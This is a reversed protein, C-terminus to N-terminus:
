RHSPGPLRQVRFATIAAADASAGPESIYWEVVLFESLHRGIRLAGELWRLQSPRIADRNRRKCEAFLVEQGRWCFVDWAGWRSGVAQRIRGLLAAPETPPDPVAPSDWYGTRLAGSYTDIWVGDWGDARLVWLVALEAFAPRGGYDLVEKGNYTDGPPPGLWRNFAPTAKSVEISGLSPLILPLTGTPTLM